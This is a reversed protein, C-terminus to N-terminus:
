RSFEVTNAQVVRSIQPFINDMAFRHLETSRSTTADEVVIVDYSLEWASRVTSEVGMNTAIGGVVLTRVGRRRLQLDLDTGIFAGWHHKFILIDGDRRLGEVLESFDPPTPGTPMTPKDVRPSPLEGESRFGVHVLVVPAGAARFRAALEKATGVVETGSRPGKEGIVIGNQLDVLILATHAPDLGPM